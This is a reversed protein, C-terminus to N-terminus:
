TSYDTMFVKKTTTLNSSAATVRVLASRDSPLIDYPRGTIERLGLVPVREWSQNTTKGRSRSDSFPNSFFGEHQFGHSTGTTIVPRQYEGLPKSLHDATKQSVNQLFIQTRCNNLTPLVQDPFQDISQCILFVSAKYQRGIASIEEFDVNKLRPAEDCILYIPNWNHSRKDGRKYIINMIYNLMIGALASGFEGHKLSQGIILAHRNKGNLAPLLHITSPGDCIAKTDPEKFRSLKNYLFGIDLGFRDDPLDFYSKLDCGWQRYAVPLNDLLEKVKEKDTILVPLISPDFPVGLKRAETIIGLLATLWTIDRKWFGANQDSENVKGYIAQAVARIELEKGFKELEELFNWVVRNTKSSLDWCALKAGTQQALPALRDAMSGAADIWVLNGSAMLNQASRLLMETKGSGPPGVILVHQTLFQNPIWVDNKVIAKNKKLEVHRGVWFDGNQRNGATALEGVENLTATQSYDFFENFRLNPKLAERPGLILINTNRIRSGLNLSLGVSDALWSLINLSLKFLFCIAVWVAQLFFQLIIQILGLFFKEM